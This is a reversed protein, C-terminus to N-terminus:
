VITELLVSRVSPPLSSILALHFYLVKQLPHEQCCCASVEAAGIFGLQPSVVSVPMGVPM